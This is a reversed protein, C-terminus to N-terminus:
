FLSVFGIHIKSQRLDLNLDNRKGLAWSINFIGTNTEFALGTGFGFYNHTYSSSNSSYAVRGLDTFAFLWSNQALLYRYELTAILFRNTYISEEDFGRLKKFGGIQFLENEYYSPSQLWGGQLATKFTAQRGIPFYHSANITTRFVYAKTQVTDYLSAYNFSPDKISLITNNKKINKQGFGVVFQLENGKRPNFRYNTSNYDYQLSLTTSSLDIMNPLRKTAKITATDVSLLSTRYVQVAVTVSKRTSVNYQAGLLGHINLFLSDRKYLEFNMNVGVPTHFLYPRQFLLNLRPSKSQLQQWNIGLTEGYGFPNRLNLNAEGTVLLKGGVQPNSPLFGVLVNVQNSKRNQLFLNVEAGTNLMTISHPQSQVIFPLEALRADIRDCIEQQYKSGEELGLYRILYERSIKADGKILITDITYLIGKDINLKATILNEKITISDLALQAFPYGNNSYYDLLKTYVGTVKQQDFPKNNFFTSSYGLQNLVPWDQEAVTLQEWTYKRGTFLRVYVNASDEKVADISNSIYGKTTLLEPLKQVYALCAAKSNFSQTLQLATITATSSDATQIVLRCAIQATSVACCCVLLFLCLIYQKIKAM